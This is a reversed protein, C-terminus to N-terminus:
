FHRKLVRLGKTPQVKYDFTVTNFTNTGSKGISKVWIKVYYNDQTKILYVNNLAVAINDLNPEDLNETKDYATKGTGVLGIKTQRANTISVSPASPSYFNFGSQAARLHLDIQSANASTYGLQTGLGTFPDWGFGSKAASASSFEDINSGSTSEYVGAYIISSASQSKSGDNRVAYVSSQYRYTRGPDLTVNHFTSDTKQVLASDQISIIRGTSDVRNTVVVYGKFDSQGQDPSATWKITAGAGSAAYLSVTVNAPPALEGAPLPGTTSDNNNCAQFVFILFVTLAPIPLLSKLFKM